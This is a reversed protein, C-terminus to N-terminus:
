TQGMAMAVDHYRSTVTNRDEARPIAIQLLESKALYVADSKEILGGYVVICLCIYLYHRQTKVVRYGLMAFICYVAM